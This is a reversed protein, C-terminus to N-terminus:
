AEVEVAAAGTLFANGIRFFDVDFGAVDASGPTAKRGM